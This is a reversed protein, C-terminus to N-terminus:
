SFRVQRDSATSSVEICALRGDDGLLRVGGCSGSETLKLGVEPRVNGDVFDGALLGSLGYESGM